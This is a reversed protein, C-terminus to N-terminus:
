LWEVPTEVDVQEVLAPLDGDAVRERYDTYADVLTQLFAEVEEIAEEFDSQDDDSEEPADRGQRLRALDAAFAEVMRPLEETMYWGVEEGPEPLDGANLMTIVRQVHKCGNSPSNFLMDPCEGEGYPSVEYSSGSETTVTYNKTEGGEYVMGWEDFQPVVVMNERHASEERGSLDKGNVPITGSDYDATLNDTTTPEEGSSAKASRAM